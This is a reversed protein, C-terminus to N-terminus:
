WCNNLPDPLQYLVGAELSSAPQINNKMEQQPLGLSYSTILKWQQSQAFFSSVIFLLLTLIPKM